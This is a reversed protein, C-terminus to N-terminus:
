LNANVWTEIQSCLKLLSAQQLIMDAPAEGPYTQEVVDRFSETVLDGNKDTIRGQIALTYAIKTRALYQEKRESTQGQQNRVTVIREEFQPERRVPTQDLFLGAILKDVGSLSSATSGGVEQHQLLQSFHRREYIAVRDSKLLQVTLYLAVAYGTSTVTGGEEFPLIADKRQATVPAGPDFTQRKALTGFRRMRLLRERATTIEQNFENKKMGLAFSGSSNMLDVAQRLSTEAKEVQQLSSYLRCLNLYGSEKEVDSQSNQAQATLMRECEDYRGERYAKELAPANGTEKNVSFWVIVSATEVRGAIDAAVDAAIAEPRGVAPSAVPLAGVVHGDRAILRVCAGGGVYADTAVFLDVDLLDGFKELAGDNKQLGREFVIDAIRRSDIMRVSPLRRKIEQQLLAQFEVARETTPTLVAITKIKELKILPPITYTFDKQGLNISQLSPGCAALVLALCISLAVLVVISRM